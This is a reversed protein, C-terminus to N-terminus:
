GPKLVPSFTKEARKHLAATYGMQFKVDQLFDDRHKLTHCARCLLQLNREQDTGGHCRPIKHDLQLANRSRCAECRWQAREFVRRETGRPVGKRHLGQEVPEPARREEVPPKQQPAIEIHGASGAVRGRRIEDAIVAHVTPDNVPLDGRETEYHASSAAQEPTDEDRMETRVILGKRLKGRTDLRNVIHRVLARLPGYPFLQRM